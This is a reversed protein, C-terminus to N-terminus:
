RRRGGRGTNGVKPNLRRYQELIKHASVASRDGATKAAHLEGMTRGDNVWHGMKNKLAASLKRAEAISRVTSVPDEDCNHVLVSLDGNVVYYTHNEAVSLNYVTFNAYEGLPELGSLGVGSGDSSRLTAGASMDEVQVWGHSQDWMSHNGTVVLPEGGGDLTLEFLDKTGTDTIPALVPQASSVGTLPDTTQVLDGVQLNEISRTTGDAMLVQTGAVFSRGRLRCSKAVSKTARNVNAKARALKPLAREVQGAKRAASAVKFGVRVGAGAGVLQAAATIGMELAKGKNGTALYAVSSVAASAAGIPGPIMSAVEGVVALVKLAGKWSFTGALDTCNVPDANCYDYASASGGAVPDTSLFRGTDASYLRVGMLVVGGLAEASRQAAGLWGYRAPPGTTAGAGSMPQPVGFEDYSLTDLQAWTATSAGDAIPITMTVDGHLDVLQLARGRLEGATNQGKTTVALDGEVGAVYRTVGDPLTTDEQIWAPEDSDSGYHSVKTIASAWANNVWKKSEFVSRRHLPDLKWTMQEVGAQTQSAVLDNVYFGNTVTGTGDPTAMSTVRGLPDYTWSSGATGPSTLLRDATDYTSAATTTPDACAQGAASDATGFSTRNASGPNTASAYGYTRTTCGVESGTLRDKVKTLRGLRDYEYDRTGTNTTHRVWQGRHNEVVSDSTIVVGDSARTYTRNVPVRAPDYEITLKM